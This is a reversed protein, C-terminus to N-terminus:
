KNSNKKSYLYIIDLVAMAKNSLEEPTTGDFAYTSIKEVLQESTYFRMPISSDDWFATVWIDPNRFNCWDNWLRKVLKEVPYELVQSFLDETPWGACAFMCIIDDLFDDSPELAHFLFLKQFEDLVRWEVDNWQNKDGTDFRNLSVEIGVSAPEEGSALIELTRPLVFRWIAKNLPIDSAAFFWDRMYHFPINKQGHNLFDKQIEPYMCCDCVGLGVPEQKFVKYARSIVDYYPSGEKIKASISPQKKLKRGM